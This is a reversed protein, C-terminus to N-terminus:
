ESVEALRAKHARIGHLVSSHDRSFIRAIQKLSLWPRLRQIEYFAAQRAGTIKRLMSRGMIEAVSVGYADAVFRIITAPPPASADRNAGVVNQMVSEAAARGERASLMGALAAMARRLEFDNLGSAMTAVRAVPDSVIEVAPTTVARLAPVKRVDDQACGVMRAINAVGVGAARKQAIFVRDEGSLGRRATAFEGGMM